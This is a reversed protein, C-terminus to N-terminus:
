ILKGDKILIPQMKVVRLNEYLWPNFEKLQEAIAEVCEKVEPNAGSLKDRHQYLHCFEPYQIKFTFNSPIAEPYLGRKVDKDDVLDKRIYGFDTRVYAEGDKDIMMAPVVGDGVKDLVEFPYLIKGKYWDSKEGESFTALRTSSRVIRNNMRAAHSDLDDQGARHLGEVSISLDIYRLLTTHGQICIDYEPNQFGYVGWRIIKDMWTKFETSYNEIVRGNVTNDAELQLLELEKERTWSRKSMLLSTFSEGLGTIKNLYVKM